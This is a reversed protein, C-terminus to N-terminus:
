LLGSTGYDINNFNERAPSKRPAGIPAPQEDLWRGQNIYTAPNPIYQGGDRQWQESKCQWELAKLILALTDAPRKVKAFAKEAAQKGIKKPYAVWFDDFLGASQDAHSTQNTEQNPSPKTITIPASDAPAPASDAPAPASDAPTEATKQPPASDAHTCIKRPNLKYITSRGLRESRALFGADELAKVHGQVTREGMSCRQAITEISPFCEGADNAQDCLSLLVFKPGHPMNLDWAATMLKISM